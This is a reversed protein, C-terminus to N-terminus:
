REVRISFVHGRLVARKAPGLYRTVINVFTRLPKERAKVRNHADLLKEVFMGLYRNEANPQGYNKKRLDDIKKWLDDRDSTSFLKDDLRDKFEVFDKDSLKRLNSLSYKKIAGRVIDRIYEQSATESTQRQYEKVESTYNEIIAQIDAMGFGAIEIFDTGTRAGAGAEEMRTRIRSEIDPFISKIDKEIRRYTPLYIVKGINIRQMEKEASRIPQSFGLEGQIYRRFSAIQNEPVSIAASLKQREDKTLSPKYVLDFLDYQYIRETFRAASSSRTPPEYAIVDVRKVAVDGGSHHIILSEFEFEKLRNWQRTIFMYFLSLFTSKGTGNPGVIISTKGDLRLRYTTQGLIGVATFGVLTTKESPSDM